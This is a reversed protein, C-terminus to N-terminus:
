RFCFFCFQRFEHMKLPFFTRCCVNFIVHIDERCLCKHSWVKRHRTESTYTKWLLRRQYLKGKGGKATFGFQSFSLHLWAITFIHLFRKSIRLSLFNNTVTHLSMIDSVKSPFKLCMLDSYM